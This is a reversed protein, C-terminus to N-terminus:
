ELLMISLELTISLELMLNLLESINNNLFFNNKIPLLMLLYCIICDILNLIFM